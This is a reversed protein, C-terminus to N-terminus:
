GRVEADATVVSAAAGGNRIAGGGGCAMGCGTLSSRVM